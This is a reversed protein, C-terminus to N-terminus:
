ILNRVNEGFILLELVPNTTPIKLNEFHKCKHLDKPLKPKPVKTKFKATKIRIIQDCQSDCKTLNESCGQAYNQQAMEDVQCKTKERFSLAAVSRVTFTLMIVNTM